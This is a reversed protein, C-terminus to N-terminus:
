LCGWLLMNPHCDILNDSARALSDTCSVCTGHAVNRIGLQHLRDAGHEAKLICAMTENVSENNGTNLSTKYVTSVMISRSIVSLIVPDTHHRKPSSECRLWAGSTVAVDGGVERKENLCLPLM